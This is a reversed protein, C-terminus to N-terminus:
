VEVRAYAQSLMEDVRGTLWRVNTEARLWTMQRKALQRTAETAKQVAQPVTLEGALVRCSERYGIAKLAHARPSLGGALLAEVERLLGAAFMRRVRLEITAHLAARPPNLGLMVFAYRAEDQRHEDWLETVRRGSVLCVELARLIRQRDNPLVRAAAVSDIEELRRRVAAADREWELELRVRLREDKPPEPFLGFLLARVYFHTGGVVVPVRGRRRIDVIAADADRVFTGASYRGSPDAVDVLHHPVRARLAMNPKATGIDFGRYVAFADASVVEGGVREALAAGLATKGSATPGVLVVLDSM